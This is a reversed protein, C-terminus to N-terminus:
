SSCCICAMSTATTGGKVLGPWRSWGARMFPVLGRAVPIPVCDFLEYEEPTILKQALAEQRCLAPLQTREELPRRLAVPGGVGPLAGREGLAQPRGCAPLRPRVHEQFLDDVMVYLTTLFTELDLDM